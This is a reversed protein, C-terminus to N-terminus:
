ANLQTQSPGRWTVFLEFQPADSPVGHAMAGLTNGTDRDFLATGGNFSIAVGKHKAPLMPAASDSGMVAEKDEDRKSMLNDTTLAGYSTNSKSVDTGENVGQYVCIQFTPVYYLSKFSPPAIAV